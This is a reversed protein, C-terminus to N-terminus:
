HQALLELVRQEAWSGMKLNEIFGCHGGRETALYAKVSGRPALGAFDEFPIVADDQATIVAVPAPANILMQPTITYADFYRQMDGYETFHEAFYRTTDWM